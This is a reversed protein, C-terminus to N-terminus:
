PALVAFMGEAGAVYLTGTGSVRCRHVSPFTTMPPVSPTIDTFTAGGDASMLVFGEGKM